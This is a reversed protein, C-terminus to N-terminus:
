KRVYKADLAGSINYLVLPIKPNHDTMITRAVKYAQPILDTMGQDQISATAELIM